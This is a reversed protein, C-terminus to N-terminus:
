AGRGYENTPNRYISHYHGGDSGLNGQTSFELILNPGQIRYYISGSGDVPGHWAFHTNTLDAQIEALRAQGSPADLLGVWLMITDLLLQRQAASWDAVKAGELPPILGDKGAGAWV